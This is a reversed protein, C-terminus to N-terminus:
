KEEENSFTTKFPGLSSPVTGTNLTKRLISEHVGFVEVVSRKSEAAELDWEVNEHSWSDSIIVEMKRKYNGIAELLSFVKWFM